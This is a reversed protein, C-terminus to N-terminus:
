ASSSNSAASLAKTAAFRADDLYGLRLLDDLVAVVITEGFERRSLKRKLEDRSHLRQSLYVMAHDFCEQRVEGIEIERIQDATLLLSAFILFM